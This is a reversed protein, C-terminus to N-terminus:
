NDKKPLKFDLITVEPDATFWVGVREERCVSAEGSVSVSLGSRLTILIIKENFQVKEIFSGALLKKSISRAM